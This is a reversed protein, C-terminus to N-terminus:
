EQYQCPFGYSEQESRPPFVAKETSGADRAIILYYLFNREFPLLPAGRSTSRAPFARQTKEPSLHWSLEWVGQTTDETWVRLALTDSVTNAPLPIPDGGSAAVRREM